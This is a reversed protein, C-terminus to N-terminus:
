SGTRLQSRLQRHMEWPSCHKKNQKTKQKNKNTKTQKQKIKNQKQKNREKKRQIKKHQKTKNKAVEFPSIEWVLYIKITGFIIHSDM